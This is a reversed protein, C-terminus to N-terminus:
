YFTVEGMFAGEKIDLSPTKKDALRSLWDLYSPHFTKFGSGPRKLSRGPFVNFSSAGATCNLAHTVDIM